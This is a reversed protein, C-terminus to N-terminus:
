DVDSLSRVLRGWLQSSLGRSHKRYVRSLVGTWWLEHFLGLLSLVEQFYEPIVLDGLSKKNVEVTGCYSTNKVVTCANPLAATFHISSCNKLLDVVGGM